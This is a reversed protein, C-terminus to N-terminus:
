AQLCSAIVKVIVSSNVDGSVEEIPYRDFGMAIVDFLPAGTNQLDLYHVDSLLQLDYQAGIQTQAAVASSATGHYTQIRIETKPLIRQMLIQHSAVGTGDELAIGCVKQGSDACQAVLGDSDYYIFNGWKIGSSGAEKVKITDGGKSIILPGKRTLTAM